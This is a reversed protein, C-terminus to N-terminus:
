AGIQEERQRQTSHMPDKDFRPIVERGFTEVAEVVIDIPMTSSLMGFVMQDAGVDAYSQVCKACEDPNGIAFIGMEIMLDLLEPTFDPMVDPWTPITDPKPFTDLYKYVLTTHRGSGMSSAIERARKGDELCVMNSTVMVNNNIYDGVPEANKIERKYIEILPALESPAGSTFCLVGLGMRAATEFTGPNGAAVWMPPHPNTYPKPLIDREPMSFFKGDFSYPEDRWMKRFEPIVEAFMEKTLNPDEIGFGKQETSSSGRGMGFEFRGGSLHDLMAVKEAVRAPPSVPPTINFIGSGIHIRETIGAAYALFAENSSLHSYEKLFHHETAWIYKFGSRDAAKVFEVENMFRQHELARDLGTDLVNPVYGSNFIGFEV